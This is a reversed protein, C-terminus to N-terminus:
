SLQFFFYILSFISKYFVHVPKWQLLRYREKNRIVKMKNSTGVLREANRNFKTRKIVRKYALRQNYTYKKKM